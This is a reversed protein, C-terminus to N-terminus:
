EITYPFPNSCQVASDWCVWINGTMAATPPTLVSMTADTTVNMITATVGTGPPGFWVALATGEFFGQGFLEATQGATLKRHPTAASLWPQTEDLPDILVLDAPLQQGAEKLQVEAFAIATDAPEVQLTVAGLPADVVFRGLGDTTIAPDFATEEYSTLLVGDVYKIIGEVRGWGELEIELDIPEDQQAIQIQQSGRYLGFGTAQRCTVSFLRLGTTVEIEFVVEDTAALDEVRVTEKLTRFDDGTVTLEIRTVADPIDAKVGFFGRVQVLPQEGEDPAGCGWAALAVLLAVVAAYRANIRM